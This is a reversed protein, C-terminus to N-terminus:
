RATGGRPRARARVVGAVQEVCNASSISPVRRLRASAAARRGGTSGREDARARDHDALRALEVVRARLGAAHQALLAVADIRALEFGAVIMVSGSKASACRRRAARRRRARRLDDLALPGVGSSGVSPPWVASLRAISSTSRPRARRPCPTSSIPAFASAMAVASSRSRNLTAIISIPRSRARRRADGVREVLGHATTSRMPRGTIMRGASCGRRCPCRCRRSRRRTRGREGGIPRSALGIQSIRM